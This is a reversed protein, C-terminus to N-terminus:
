QIMIMWSLVFYFLCLPYVALWTRSDPLRTGTFFNMSAWVSWAWGALSVPIRVFLNHVLMSIISALLIPALAYGLVCLSQFFSVKGGLLKSNVTVVITGITILSIVLSFVQMSQDQPADISLVIALGLCIVLPGWLDWDRLLENNGGGKPPYVVQLLKTYISRLDRMITESVPEDLTSVGTYRTEVRVGGWGTRTESSPGGSGIRGSVGANGSSSTSPGASSPGAAEPRTSSSSAQPQSFSLADLDDDDAQIIQNSPTGIPAYSM